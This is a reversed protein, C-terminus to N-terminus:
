KELYRHPEDFFTMDAYGAHIKASHKVGEPIYYLDGKAFRREKGDIVLEINGKLVVGVQAAHSHESVVADRDFDMFVIQHNASQSLYGTVGELPIDAKPLKRIPDPFVFNM